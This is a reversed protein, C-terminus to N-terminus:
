AEFVVTEDEVTYPVKGTVLAAAADQPVNWGRRIVEIMQPRDKKFFAGNIAWRVMGPACIMESSGLRYTKM